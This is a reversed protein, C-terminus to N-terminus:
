SIKEINKFREAVTYALLKGVMNEVVSRISTYPSILICTSPNKLASLHIVPGTGLSRGLLIINKSDIRMEYNIYDFVTEADELM